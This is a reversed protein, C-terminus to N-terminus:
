GTVPSLSGQIIAAVIPIALSAIAWVYCKTALAVRASKAQIALHMAHSAM